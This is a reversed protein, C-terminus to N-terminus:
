WPYFGAPNRRLPATPPTLEGQLLHGLLVGLQSMLERFEHCGLAELGELLGSWDLRRSDHDRLAACRQEVWGYFDREHSTATVGCSTRHM